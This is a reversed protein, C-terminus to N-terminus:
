CSELAEQERGPSISISGSAFEKRRRQSIHM